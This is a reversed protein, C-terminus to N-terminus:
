GRMRRSRWPTRSRRARRRRRDRNGAPPPARCPWRARPRSPRRASRPDARDVDDEVERRGQRVRRDGRARQLGALVDVGLLRQRGGPRTTRAPRRPRAGRGACRSRARCRGRSPRGPRARPSRRHRQDAIRERHARRHEDAPLLGPVRIGVDEVGLAGARDEVHPRVVQGGDDRQEPRDLADGAERRRARQLARDLDPRARALRKTAVVGVCVVAAICSALPTVALRMALKSARPWYMQSTAMWPLSPTSRIGSGFAKPPGTRTLRARPPQSSM